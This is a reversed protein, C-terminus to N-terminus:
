TQQHHMGITRCNPCHEIYLTGEASDYLTSWPVAAFFTMREECDPCSDFQADQIWEPVGGITIVEDGGCAYYKPLSTATLTLKMQDMAQLDAASVYNKEGSSEQKMLTCNGYADYRVYNTEHMMCCNPCVPIALVGTVNLFSFRDDRGDLRLIDIMQCGCDSCYDDQRLRGAAAAADGDGDPLMAFCTDYHLQVAQGSRNFGWSSEQAYIAPGVYLNSQWPLPEKELQAFVEVVRDGGSAALCLMMSSADQSPCDPQLLRSIIEEQVVKTADRYLTGPYYINKQLAAEAVEALNIDHYALLGNFDDYIEKWKEVEEIREIITQLKLQLQDTTLQEYSERKERSSCKWCVGQFGIEMQCRECQYRSM